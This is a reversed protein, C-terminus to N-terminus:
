ASHLGTMPIDTLTPEVLDSTSSILNPLSPFRISYLCIRQLLPASGGLFADPIVLTMEDGAGLRLSKLVPFPDQMWAM